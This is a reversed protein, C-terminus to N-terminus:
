VYQELDQMKPAEVNSEVTRQISISINFTATSNLLNPTYSYHEPLSNHGLKQQLM